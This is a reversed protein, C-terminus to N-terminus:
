GGEKGACVKVGKRGHVCKLGGGEMCWLRLIPAGTITSSSPSVSGRLIEMFSSLYALVRDAVISPIHQTNYMYM